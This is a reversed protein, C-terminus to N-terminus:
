EEQRRWWEATLQLGEEMSTPLGFDPFKAAFDSHDVLYDHDWIFSMERMERLPAIFLGLVAATVGSITWITPPKTNECARAAKQVVDTMPEAPANPCHWARGWASEGAEAVAVVARALDPVFTFTHKYKPNGFVVGRGSKLLGKWMDAGMAAHIVGPGYFDSARVLAVKCRGSDAAELMMKDLRSRLAPKRGYETLDRSCEKMSIGSHAVEPGFMYLNDVWVLVAGTAEAAKLLSEVIKPFDKEWVLSLYPLGISAYIVSTDQCLELTKQEDLADGQKCCVGPLSSLSPISGKRSVATVVAANSTGTAKESLLRVIADGVVGTAGFVISPLERAASM